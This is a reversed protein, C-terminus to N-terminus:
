VDGAQLSAQTVIHREFDLADQSSLFGNLTEVDEFLLVDDENSARGSSKENLDRWPILQAPLSLSKSALFREGLQTSSFGILVGRAGVKIQIPGGVNMGDELSQPPTALIFIDSM